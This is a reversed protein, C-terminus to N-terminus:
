LSVDDNEGLMVLPPIVTEAGLITKIKDILVTREHHKDLM